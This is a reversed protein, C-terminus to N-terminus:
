CFFDRLIGRTSRRMEEESQDQGVFYYRYRDEDFHEDNGPVFVDEVFERRAVFREDDAYGKGKTEVILAKDIRENCRQVILFDPTYLGVKKWSTGSGKFCEIRFDAVTRDGNYYVGLGLDAVEKLEMVMEYFDQEFTSDFQYPIYQYTNDYRGGGGHEAELRQALEEQGAARLAAVAQSVSADGGGDSALVDREIRESPYFQERGASYVPQLLKEEDAFDAYALGDVPEVTSRMEVRPYAAARVGSRVGDQDFDGSMYDHGCISLVCKDYIRRLEAATGKSRLLAVVSADNGSEKRIIELWRTFTVPTEYHGNSIEEFTSTGTFDFDETTEVEVSRRCAGPLMALRMNVDEAALHREETSTTLQWKVYEMKPLNLRPLRSHRVVGTGKTGSQFTELDIRQTDKLQKVLIDTNKRNMCIYAGEDCDGRVVQRLCRCATQLVMNKPCDREQSLIVGTLSRCDWGEKGIQALLIVRKQSIDSDLSKFDTEWSPSTPYKRKGTGGRHYKLIVESPDYGLNTVVKVALPYVEDELRQVTGCFVAVKACTGDGYVTNAYRSFFADLGHRVIEESTATYSEVTPRKLFNGIGSSLPYYEVVDALLSQKFSVSESVEVTQKKPLFPTGSFGLVGNLSGGERAWANVVARLKIEGSEAHHVEDIIVALGPLRGITERLENEVVAQYDDPDFLLDGENDTQARDLIVKEANTVLVLGRADEYPQHLSIKQVNPNKARNSKNASKQADLVEFSIEGRLAAAAPEPIVWSPDFDQITRLSPIVSSKLGSPAFVIFNRAFAPNDPEGKGFYLDLYIFAAMLYTKGAGMPLSFVYDTYTVGYLLRKFVEVPDISDADRELGALVAKPRGGESGELLYEYLAALGDNDVLKRRFSASLAEEDLDLSNFCGESYLEWLPRGECPIKLYLYTKIAEIQADRLKGRRAMYDVLDNVPCDRRAYWADRSRRIM